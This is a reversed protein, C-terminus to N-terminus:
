EGQGKDKEEAWGERTDASSFFCSSSPSTMDGPPCGKCRGLGQHVKELSHRLPAPLIPVSTPVPWCSGLWAEGEGPGSFTPVPPGTVIVPAEVQWEM